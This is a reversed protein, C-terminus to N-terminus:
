RSGALDDLADVVAHLDSEGIGGAFRDAPEGADPRVLEWAVPGLLRRAAQPDRDLDVGRHVALRHRAIGRVLPALRHHRDGASAGAMYVVRELAALDSPIGPREDRRRFRPGRARRPPRPLRGLTFALALAAAVLLVLRAITM